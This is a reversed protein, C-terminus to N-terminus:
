RAVLPSRCRAMLSSKEMAMSLKDNAGGNDPGSTTAVNALVRELATLLTTMAANFSAHDLRVAQRRALPALVEPLDNRRPPAAGDILVPIVRIDRNLATAIELVILDDPDDLRRRDYEDVAGLWGNGIVALLVDCSGVAKDIVEGYDLGPEISDVDMFVNGAGFRSELRDFLRGAIHQADTRRYSLFIRGVTPQETV